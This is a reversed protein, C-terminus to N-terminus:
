SASRPAVTVQVEHLQGGRVVSVTMTSGVIDPGLLTQLDDMQQAASHVLFRVDAHAPSGMRTAMPPMEPPMPPPMGSAPNPGVHRFFVVDRRMGTGAEPPPVPRHFFVDGAPREGPLPFQPLPPPLPLSFMEGHMEDLEPLPQGDIRVIIDGQFMGGRAAPGGEEVEVVLLGRSQDAQERAAASLEIPQTKIGLYGREIRGHEQLLGTIRRVVEWPIATSAGGVGLGSTAMGLLAGSTDILAGGSFGPYMVADVYILREIVGSRM